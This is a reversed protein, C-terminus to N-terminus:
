FPDTELPPEALKALLHNRILDVTTDEVALLDQPM